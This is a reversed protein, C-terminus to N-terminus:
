VSAWGRGPERGRLGIPILRTRLAGRPSFLPTRPYTGVVIMLHISIIPIVPSQM